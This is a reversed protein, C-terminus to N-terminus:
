ARMCMVSGSNLAGGLYHMVFAFCWAASLFCSYALPPFRADRTSTFLIYIGFYLYSVLCAGALVALLHPLTMTHM